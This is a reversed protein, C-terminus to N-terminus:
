RAKSRKLDILCEEITEGIGFSLNIGCLNWFQQGKKRLFDDVGIDNKVIALFGDGNSYIIDASLVEKMDSCLTKISSDIKDSLLSLAEFDNSLMLKDIHKRVDDGDGIIYIHNSTM